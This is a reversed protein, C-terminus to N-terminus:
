LGTLVFQQKSTWEADNLRRSSWIPTWVFDNIRFECNQLNISVRYAHFINRMKRHQNLQYHKLKTFSFPLIMKKVHFRNLIWIKISLFLFSPLFDMFKFDKKCIITQKPFCTYLFFDNAKLHIWINYLTKFFYTLILFNICLWILILDFNNLRKM